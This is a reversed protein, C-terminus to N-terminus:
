LRTIAVHRKRVNGDEYGIFTEGESSRMACFVKADGNGEEIDCSYQRVSRGDLVLVSLSCKKQGPCVFANDKTDYYGKGRTKIKMPIIGKETNM